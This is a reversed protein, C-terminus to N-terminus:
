IYLWLLIVGVRMWGGGGWVCLTAIANCTSVSLSHSLTLPSMVLKTSSSVAICEKM